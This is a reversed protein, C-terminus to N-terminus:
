MHTRLAERDIERRLIKGTASRPFDDVLVVRRPYAYAAVRERAYAQLEVPDCATPTEPRCARSRCRLVPLKTARWDRLRWTGPTTPSSMATANRSPQCM